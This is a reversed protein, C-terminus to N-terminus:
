SHRIIIIVIKIFTIPFLFGYNGDKLWQDWHYIDEKLAPNMFHTHKELM